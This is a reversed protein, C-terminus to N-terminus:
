LWGAATAAASPTLSASTGASATVAEPDPSSGSMEGAYALSWTARTAAAWPSPTSVTWSRTSRFVLLPM